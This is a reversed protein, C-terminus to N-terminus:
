GLDAGGACYGPPVSLQIPPDLIKRVSNALASNTFPKPLFGAIRQGAFRRATESQNFGTTLLIKAEPNIAFINGMAEEGSMKPMTLDLIVMSISHSLGRYIDLGEKGNGASLVTYGYRELSGRLLDRIGGDDDIVLITGIGRPTFSPEDAPVAAIPERSVPLLVTFTSGIGVESSVHIAGKHARVIGNAAALGLGRGTFKTTFFPDFIREQTEPDMGCGNDRVQISVYDGPALQEAQPATESWIDTLRNPQVILEVTGPLNGIAEAANIVLNMILQQLQTSDANVPQVDHAIRFELEVNRPISTRILQSIETVLASINTPKVVFRGKGAYALLQRTLDAAKETSRIASELLGREPNEAPMSEYVLSANGLISTLINNFDHAIGGALLGISELKAAERLRNELKQNESRDLVWCIWPSWSSKDYSASGLIVPVRHGDKAIYEKEFQAAFGEETLQRIARADTEEYGPPTIEMWKLRGDTLDERTYGLMTLFADNAELITEENGSIVGIIPSDFLRRLRADSRALDKQIKRISTVDSYTALAGRLSGDPNLLPLSNIILTMTFGDSRVFEVEVNGVREGTRLTHRLPTDDVNVSTGSFTRLMGRKFIRLDTGRAVDNGFMESATRNIFEVHMGSSAIIIGVPMEMLVSELQFHESEIARRELESTKRATIDRVFLNLGSPAPYADFEYWRGAGEMKDEFRIPARDRQARQMERYISVSPTEPFVTRLSKGFLLAPSKKAIQGARANAYICRFDHDISFIADQTSELVAHLRNGTHQAVFHAMRLRQMAICIILSAFGFLVTSFIDSSGADAAHPVHLLYGAPLLPLATILGPKLGGFWASVVVALIFILFLEQTGIVPDLALGILVAFVACMAAIVLRVLRSDYSV